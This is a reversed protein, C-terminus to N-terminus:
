ASEGLVVTLDIPPNEGEQLNMDSAPKMFEFEIVRELTYPINNGTNEVFWIIGQHDTSDAQWSGIVDNDRTPLWPSIKYQVFQSATPTAGDFAPNLVSPKYQFTVMNDDVRHPKCGLRRFKEATSLGNAFQKTRDIMYYLYPVAGGTGGAIFTDSQPRLIFKVNKIRYYQYGKAITQARISSTLSTNYVYYSNNMALLPISTTETCSAREPVSRAVRRRMPARRRRVRKQKSAKRPPM